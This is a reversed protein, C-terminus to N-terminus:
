KSKMRDSKTTDATNTNDTRQESSKEEKMFNSVNIKKRNEKTKGITLALESDLYPNTYPNNPDDDKIVQSYKTPTSKVIVKDDNKDDNKLDDETFEPADNFDDINDYLHNKEKSVSSLKNKFQFLNNVIMGELFKSKRIEAKMARLSEKIKTVQKQGGIDDM